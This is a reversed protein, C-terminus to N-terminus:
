REMILWNPRYLGDYDVGGYKMKCFVYGGALVTVIGHYDSKRVRAGISIIAGRADRYDYIKSECREDAHYQIDYAHRDVENQFVDEFQGLPQGLLAENRM